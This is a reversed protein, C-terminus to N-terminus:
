RARELRARPTKRLQGKVKLNDPRINAGCVSVALGAALINKSANIDRDHHTSCKPCDWERINLPLKEVVHSCHGCRKSSPFWRDIKVFTRGYWDCKYELQRVLEGWSADSISSALKRNKVMNKVSLDEVAILQNEQVLRTTLKHLFDNRADSIQAHVKAVVLRSKHRNNSGKQKRSLALQAKRLKAKKAKFGKPNAVKEGTSLAVLSTIGLDVGVQNTCEPLPKIEVDVLMSVTWRGSPSLKVTITSPEVGQPLQRSWRIALAEPSKALFVQGDRFKFAAKTFEANGGNHKKKFNPYKARGAFFNSFATQLHRLGQQLPVSSVDNLFQLDEQKKWNTLMTSTEPYGVREQNEYWAQTRAALARNYVLRTCGMTQRLLTEQEPTPYFRYKFSRQTM